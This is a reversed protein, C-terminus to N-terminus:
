RRKLDKDDPLNAVSDIFGQARTTRGWPKYLRQRIKGLSFTYVEARFWHVDDQLWKPFSTEDMWSSLVRGLATEHTTSREQEQKREKRTDYFQKGLRQLRNLIHQAHQLTRDSLEGSNTALKLTVQGGTDDSRQQFGVAIVEGQPLSVLVNAIADLIVPLHNHIPVDLEIPTECAPGDEPQLETLLGVLYEAGAVTISIECCSSTQAM